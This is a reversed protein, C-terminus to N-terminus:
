SSMRYKSKKPYNYPNEWLFCLNHSLHELPNGKSKRRMKRVYKPLNKLNLINENEPNILKDLHSIHNVNSAKCRSWLALPIGTEIILEEYDLEESEQLDNSFNIGIIMQEDDCFLIELDEEIKRNCQCALIYNSLNIQQLHSWLFDWKKRWLPVCDRYNTHLRQSSRIHVSRFRGVCGIKTNERYNWCDIKLSSLLNSPLIWEIAIQFYEDPKIEKLKENCEVILSSIKEEIEAQTYSQNSQFTELLKKYQYSTPSEPIALWTDILFKDLENKNIKSSEPKLQILLYVYANDFNLSSKNM